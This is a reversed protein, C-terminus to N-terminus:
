EGKKFGEKAAKVVDERHHEAAYRLWDRKANPDTYALLRNTKVKEVGPRSWFGYEPNYFAGKGTIPDAYLIGAWQYHGYPVGNPNFAYVVDREGNSENFSKIDNYLAMTDGKPVYQLMDKVLEEKMADQGADLKRGFRTIDINVSIGSNNIKINAKKFLNTFYNKPMGM